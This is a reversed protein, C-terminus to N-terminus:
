PDEFVNCATPHNIYTPKEVFIETNGDSGNLSTSALDIKLPEAQVASFGTLAILSSLALKKKRRKM